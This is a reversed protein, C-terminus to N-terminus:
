RFCNLPTEMVHDLGYKKGIRYRNSASEYLILMKEDRVAIEEAMPAVQTKVASGETLIFLPIERGLVKKTGSAPVESLQWSLIRSSFMGESQSLYLSGDCFCAGQVRDPISYVVRPTVADGDEVSFGFLYAQQTKGDSETRHSAHTRFFPESRFEGAYLFEGDAATFSVRISDEDNNLEVRGADKLVAGDEAGLLEALPISYMCGETSGAIYAHDGYVSIGGAHGTYRIGDKTEFLIKRATGTQADVVFVPSDKGRGYYGSILLSDTDPYCALGQPVFGNEIEPVACLPDSNELYYQFDFRSMHFMCVIVMIVSVLAMLNLNRKVAPRKSEFGDLPEDCGPVIGKVLTKLQEIMGQQADATKEFAKLRSCFPWGPIKDSHDRRPFGVVAWESIVNLNQLFRRIVRNEESDPRIGDRIKALSRSVEKHLKKDASRYYLSSAAFLIVIVAFAAWSVPSVMRGGLLTSFLHLSVTLLSALIVEYGIMEDRAFAFRRLVHSLFAFLIVVAFTIYIQLLSLGPAPGVIRGHINVYLAIVAALAGFGLVDFAALGKIEDKKDLTLEDARVYEPVFATGADEPRETDYFPATQPKRLGILNMCDAICDRMLFKKKQFRTRQLFYKVMAIFGGPANFLRSEEIFRSFTPMVAVSAMDRLPVYVTEQLKPDRQTKKDFVERIRDQLVMYFHWQAYANMILGVLFAISIAFLPWSFGHWILMLVSTLFAVASCEYTVAEYRSFVGTRILHVAFCLVIFFVVIIATHM